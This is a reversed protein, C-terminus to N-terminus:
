CGPHCMGRRNEEKKDFPRMAELPIGYGQVQKKYACAHCELECTSTAVPYKCGCIMVVPGCIGIAHLMRMHGHSTVHLPMCAFVLM